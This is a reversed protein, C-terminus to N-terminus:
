ETEPKDKPLLLNLLVAFITALVVPSSAFTNNIISQFNELSMGMNLASHISQTMQDLCGKSLSVGMGIAISLGAVTTNRFTLKETVLLKIGTMAISAFVSAVAGGLVCQPITRLLASFKPILGAILLIAASMSFVKRAVVKTSGVIGVNQSFTATPPCGFCASVINSIGYGIIGGNLEKDTPLRDMGGSTTASFDGMAQISNVLFLIALPLIASIEFSMGFELPKPLQFWGASSLASFDVMGFCLAVIYGCVLGILISALKFLGKGYHNLAVVIGLTIFAVLWNQWSGFVLAATKGQEEVIVEYTNSPNGAMYNVATTYLSLGIAFIVTGIVLPPFVKRIQKIFLGVLIAVIGGIVMAGLITDVSKAQAAIATMTPVYAFSVGIIVPLGSGLHIRNGYLQLFTSLAAFVLSMQILLGMNVNGGANNAANAVLIAPTVCGVVAALVHQAALPLIQGFSPNGDWKFLETNDKRNGKETNM